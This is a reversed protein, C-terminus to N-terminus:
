REESEYSGEERKRGWQKGYKKVKTEERRVQRKGRFWGMGRKGGQKRESGKVGRRGDV